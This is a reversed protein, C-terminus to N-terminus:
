VFLTFLFFSNITRSQFTCIYERKKKKQKNLSFLKKDTIRGGKFSVCVCVCVVTLFLFFLCRCFSTPFFFFSIVDLWFIHTFFFFFFFLLSAPLVFCSFFSCICIFM